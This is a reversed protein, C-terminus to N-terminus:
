ISEAAIPTPACAKSPAVQSAAPRDTQRVMAAILRSRQRCGAAPPVTRIVASADGPTSAAPRPKRTMGSASLTSTSSSILVSPALTDISISPTNGATGNNGAADQYSNATVSISANGSALNATPTFVATRTLGTGSIASVTGGSVVLDGVSGDWAFSAGPAESFTFTLNATEGAKLGTVDSTIAVSPATTDVVYAPNNAVAISTITGTNGAADKLTAGNLSLANLAIAVGDTDTQGNVITTTFVLANTGSGSVYTAQVTSSGVLLDLTPSGATLNVVVVESFTVTALLTDGANLLSVTADSPSLTAGIASTLLVNTLTPAVTDLSFSPSAGAAGLNGAADEYSQATVTISASGSALNASPTFVANRTLGTGTLASLTGGTVVVDGASGDWAFSSGVDESLTFTINATDGAKLVSLDSAIVVTPLTTDVLFLPNAIVAASTIVCANGAADSMIAGNLTLANLPLSVGDTDNLGAVISATFVWTNTGTGSVYSAQVVSSGIQLALTPSGGAANLTVADDFSVTASLTDGANM